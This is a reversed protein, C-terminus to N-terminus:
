KPVAPPEWNHRHWWILEINVNGIFVGLQARIPIAAVDDTFWGKFDGTMGYLGSFHATGELGVVRIKRDKIADVEDMKRETCFHFETTGEKAYVVTPVSITMQHRVQARAFFLLSLGDHFANKINEVTDYISPGLAPSTLDNHLTREIFINHNGSDYISAEEVWQDHQKEWAHFGRSYYLSDMHTSDIVHLDVFPIGDYSDVFATAHYQPLGAISDLGQTKIRIRGLKIGAYSVEYLLDEGPCILLSDCNSNNYQPSKGASLLRAGLLSSSSIPFLALFCWLEFIGISCFNRLGGVINKRKMPERNM